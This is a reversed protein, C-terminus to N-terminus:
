RLSQWGREFFPLGGWLVVPSALAFQTWTSLRAAAPFLHFHNGMDIAVVPLALALSIWFRRTMDALEGGDGAGPVEPELAMGCIPCAGPSPRRIEPHMPCTHITAAPMTSGDQHEKKLSARDKLYTQPDDAFRSRCRASCFHYDCDRYRYRHPSKVPDVTM